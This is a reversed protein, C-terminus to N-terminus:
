ACRQLKFPRIQDNVITYFFHESDNAWAVGYYTYPIVDPLMKGSRLDKFHIEFM